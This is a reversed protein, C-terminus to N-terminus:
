TCQRCGCATRRLDGAVGCARGLDLCRIMAAHRVDELEAVTAVDLQDGVHRLLLLDDGKGTRRELDGPDLRLPETGPVPM